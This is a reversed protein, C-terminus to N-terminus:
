FVKSVVDNTFNLCDLVREKQVKSLEDIDFYDYETHEDSLMIEADEAMHARFIFAHSNFATHYYVGSLYAIDVDCNLEEQCERLLAQHITEGKDLAGGPLGWSKQGYDAKLLLVQGQNNTIVAHSSLRYTDSFAM